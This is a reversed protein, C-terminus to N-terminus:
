CTHAIIRARTYWLSLLCCCCCCCCYDQGHGAISSSPTTGLELVLILVLVLVLVLVLILVLVPVLVLVRLSRAESRASGRLSRQAAESALAQVRKSSSRGWSGVFSRYGAVVAVISDDSHYNNFTVPAFDCPFFRSNRSM